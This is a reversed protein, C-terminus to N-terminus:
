ACVDVAQQPHIMDKEVWTMYNWYDGKTGQGNVTANSFFKATWYSSGQTHKAFAYLGTNLAIERDAFTNNLEAQISWEGIYVPFKGDGAADEADSCIYSTINQGTAGRGEFYYRHVDFVMNTHKPFYHSWYTEPHFSGQFMIPIKPDVSHVKDIVSRIYKVVWTAGDDSLAAPTGFVSMDKVDAPENIPSITYSEPRGSLQVYALVADIVKLSYDLATQNHFWSYHGFAEGIDMGNVGGPLSHIDIIIHMGHRTIAYTAIDHLYAVQHGTYYQSGPVKIWAAYTTPIRLTNVGAGALKDIDAHTIFTAYRRELIPGCQSGQKVCLNWEDTAGKSYKAWWATDITSEQCLWGGLNVGNAKYTNWDVYKAAILTFCSQLLTALILKRM